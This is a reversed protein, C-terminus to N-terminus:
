SFVTRIQFARWPEFGPHNNCGDVLAAEAEDNTRNFTLATHDEGPRRMRRIVTQM